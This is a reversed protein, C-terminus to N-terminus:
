YGNKICKGDRKLPQSVRDLRRQEVQQGKTKLDEVDALTLAYRTADYLSEYCDATVSWSYEDNDLQVAWPHPVSTEHRIEFYRHRKDKNAWEVLMGIPNEM